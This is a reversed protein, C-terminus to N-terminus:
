LLAKAVFRSRGPVVTFPFSGIYLEIKSRM